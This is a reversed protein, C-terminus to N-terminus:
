TKSFLYERTRLNHLYWIKVDHQTKHLVNSSFFPTNGKACQQLDPQQAQKQGLIQYCKGVWRETLILWFSISQFLFPTHQCLEKMYRQHQNLSYRIKEYASSSSSLERGGDDDDAAASFVSGCSSLEWAVISRVPAVTEGAVQDLEPMGGVSVDGTIVSVAPWCLERLSDLLLGLGGMPTNDKDSSQGGGRTSGESEASSSGQWDAMSRMGVEASFTEM